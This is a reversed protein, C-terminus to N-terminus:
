LESYSLWPNISAVSNGSSHQFHNKLSTKLTFLHIYVNKKFLTFIFLIGTKIMRMNEM